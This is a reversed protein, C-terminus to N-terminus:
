SKRKSKRLKENYMKRKLSSIKDILLVGNLHDIEHQMIVAYMDEFEMEKEIGEMTLAKVKVKQARKIDERLEPFSLCGEGESLFKGEKRTIVPNILADFTDIDKELNTKYVIIKKNVGIQPAALGVGNNEFMIKAMSDALKKINSDIKDIKETNQKLREDPYTVIDYM